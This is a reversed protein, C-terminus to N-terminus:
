GPRHGERRALEDGLAVLRDKWTADLEHILAATERLPGPAITFLRERGSKRSRVLGAEVLIRLHRSIAPRSVDFRGAIDGARMEGGGLVRLIRRRTPDALARFAREKSPDPKERSRVVRPM